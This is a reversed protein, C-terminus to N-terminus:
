IKTKKKLTKMYSMAVIGSGLLLMTAPEPNHLQTIIEDGGGSPLPNTGTTVSSPDTEFLGGVSPESGGGGSNCGYVFPLLVSFLFLNHLRAILTKM